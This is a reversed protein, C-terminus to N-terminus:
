RMSISIENDEDPAVEHGTTDADVDYGAANRTAELLHAQELNLHLHKAQMLLMTKINYYAMEQLPFNDRALRAMPLFREELEGLYAKQKLPMWGAGNMTLFNHGRDVLKVLSGIPDEALRSFYLDYPIVIGRHKKTLLMTSHGVRTGFRSSIDDFGIHDHDECVDHLLACVLTEEKHIISPLITRLYNCIYVQHSMVPNVGDKRFGVHMGRALKLADLAVYYERGLLWQRLAMLEKAHQDTPTLTVRAM